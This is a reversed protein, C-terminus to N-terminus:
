RRSRDMAQQLADPISAVQTKSLFLDIGAASGRQRVEETLFATCMVIAQGPRRERIKTATEIGDMEPMMLDLVIVEPDIEDLCELAERGGAAEGSVSMGQDATENITRILLRIDPEDDVILAGISM